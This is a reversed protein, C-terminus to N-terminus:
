IKKFVAKYHWKCRYPMIAKRENNGKNSNNYLVFFLSFLFYLEKKNFKGKIIKFILDNYFSKIFQSNNISKKTNSYKQYLLIIYNYIMTVLLIKKSNMEIKIDDKSKLTELNTNAKTIKIYIEVDWRKKYSNKFYDTKYKEKDLLNTAMHFIKNNVKYSIIRIKNGKNNTVEYDDSFISNKLDHKFKTLYVSNTKMRAIFKLNKEYFINTLKDSFYLADFLFTKTEDYYGNNLLDYFIKLESKYFDKNIHLEEPKNKTNCVSLLKIKKYGKKSDPDYVNINLGDTINFDDSDNKLFKEYFENIIKNLENLGIHKSRKDLSQRTIAVKNNKSINIASNTHTSGKETNLLYYLLADMINSKYDYVTNTNEILFNKIDKNFFNILIQIDKLFKNTNDSDMYFIFYLFFLNIPQM